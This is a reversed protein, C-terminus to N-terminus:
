TAMSWPPCAVRALAKPASPDMSPAASTVIAVCRLAMPWTSCSASSTTALTRVARASSARM